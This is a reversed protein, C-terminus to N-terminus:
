PDDDGQRQDQIQQAHEAPDIELPLRLQRPGVRARDAPTYGDSDYRGAAVDAAFLRRQEDLWAACAPCLSQLCTEWDTGSACTLPKM